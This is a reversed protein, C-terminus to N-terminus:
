DFLIEQVSMKSDKPGTKSDCDYNGKQGRRDAEEEGESTEKVVKDFCKKTCAVYNGLLPDLQTEDVHSKPLM